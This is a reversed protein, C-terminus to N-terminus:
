QPNVVPVDDIVRVLHVEWRGTAEPYIFTVEHTEKRDPFYVRDGKRLDCQLVPEFRISLHTDVSAQRHIMAGGMGEVAGRGDDYIGVAIVEVRSTDPVSARYGGTQIKMPKLVIPEGFLADVRLDVAKSDNVTTM